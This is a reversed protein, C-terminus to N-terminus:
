AELLIEEGYEIYLADILAQSARGIFGEQDMEKLPQIAVDHVDYRGKATIKEGWQKMLAYRAQEDILLTNDDISETDYPRLIRICRVDM